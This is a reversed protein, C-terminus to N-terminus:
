KPVIFICMGNKANASCCKTSDDTSTNSSSCDHSGAAASAHFETAHLRETSANKYTTNGNASALYVLSERLASHAKIGAQQTAPSATDAPYRKNRGAPM